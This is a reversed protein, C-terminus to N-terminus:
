KGLWCQLFIKPDQQLILILPVRSKYTNVMNLGKMTIMPLGLICCIMACTCGYVDFQLTTVVIFAHSFKEPHETGRFHRGALVVPDLCGLARQRHASVKNPASVTCVNILM